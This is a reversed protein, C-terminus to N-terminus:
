EDHSKTTDKTGGELHDWKLPSGGPRAFLISLVSLHHADDDNTIILYSGTM